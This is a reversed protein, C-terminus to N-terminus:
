FPFFGFYDSDDAVASDDVFEEIPSVDEDDEDELDEDEEVMESASFGFENLEEDIEPESGGAAEATEGVSEVAEKAPELGADTAEDLAPREDPSEAPDGSVAEENMM